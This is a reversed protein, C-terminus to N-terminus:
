GRQLHNAKWRFEYLIFKTSGLEHFHLFCEEDDQNELPNRSFEEPAPCTTAVDFTEEMQQCFLDHGQRPMTPAVYWFRSSADQCLVIRITSVLLNVMESQYILDSGILFKIKGAFSSPDQWNLCEATVYSTHCNNLTLNHQLNDVTTPNLDTAIVRVKSGGMRAVVLSPLGCGAGLELVQPVDDDRNVATGVIQPVLTAVWHAAVISAAWIALGTTDVQYDGETTGLITDDKSSAMVLERVRIPQGGFLLSHIISPMSDNANAYEMGDVVEEDQGSASQQQQRTHSTELLRDETASEHELLSKVVNTNESAFGETLASRGFSNRQLVDVEKQQTLLVQCVADQGNTAAWHLATNGSANTLKSFSVSSSPGDQQQEKTLLWKVIEVHGNAAAMHLASNQNNAHQYYLMDPHVTYIAKLITLENYRAADLWERQCDELTLDNRIETILAALDDDNDDDNNPPSTTTSM